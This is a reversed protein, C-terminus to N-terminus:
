HFTSSVKQISVSLVVEQVWDGVLTFTLSQYDWFLVLLLYKRVSMLVWRGAMKSDLFAVVPVNLFVIRGTYLVISSLEDKTAELTLLILNRPCAQLTKHAPSDYIPEPCHVRGIGHLKGSTFIAKFNKDDKLIAPNFEM